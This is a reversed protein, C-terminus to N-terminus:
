SYLDRRRSDASSGIKRNKITEEFKEYSEVVEKSASPRMEELAKFFHSIQIEEARIDSRLARIAAERCLSEIDAGSFSDTRVALEKLDVNKHLPMPKTFIKFIALRDEENPPPVYSMRDIRGPRVLAPDMIDPRNTAAIMIIDHSLSIGDLETLLQSIVRETVGGDTGGSGRRPAISDLEDFFIICPSALKAKRFVERVAKESEGVWKSILEPGKISIFNAESETAVARALLTKGCGPPGYLLVGSPPRVGMREYAKPNKIPWEVSEILQQKTYELGGVDSWHVSPIEVFVERIGSPIIEKFAHNFDAGTVFMRDLVEPEIEDADVNLEPLYRRLAAMGTERVLSAIDAGVYGHTVRAIESLVVDENMPMKRTHIQLIELRGKEGPVKIELERDFRGPRRLAPDVANPRNTAGIIVVRGRSELGDMLALLQAVVRREVEGTVNERKPAIADIEDIFIISPSKEEAEKFLGRLKKESEGYFKSMVEPGNISIFHAQSENAVAKALLTKGCGPPGRLLVGKPPDIGLRNFLEPHKLPLEVMERVQQIEGDLGGIDEYTIYPIGPAIEDATTENISLTTSSKVLCIGAPKISIIRFVIEKTMGINIYILDGKAIPFNLLKRKVFSEFRTNPKIKLSIPALVVSKGVTEDVKSVFVFDDIGVNANNRVRSDIRVIELGQDQPYAPWAIAATIRDDGRIQIIDGTNVNLDTMTRSDLRIISRGIDRKRAEQVKLKLENDDMSNGNAGGNLSM